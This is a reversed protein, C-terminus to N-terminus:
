RPKAKGELRKRRRALWKTALDEIIATVPVGDEVGAIKLATVTDPPLYVLMQQKGPTKSKVNKERNAM